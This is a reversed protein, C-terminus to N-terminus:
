ARSISMSPIREMSTVTAIAMSTTAHLFGDVVGVGLIVSFAVDMMVGVLVADVVFCFADGNM